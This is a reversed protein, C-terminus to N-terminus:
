NEYGDVSEMSTIDEVEPSHPVSSIETVGNQIPYPQSRVNRPYDYFDFGSQQKLNHEHGTEINQRKSLINTQLYAPNIDLNLISQQRKAQSSKLIDQSDNSESAYSKRINGDIITLYMGSNDHRKSNSKADVPTPAQATTNHQSTMSTSSSATPLQCPECHKKLNTISIRSKLKLKRM